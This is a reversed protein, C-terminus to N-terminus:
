FNSSEFLSFDLLEHFHAKLKETKPNDLKKDGL